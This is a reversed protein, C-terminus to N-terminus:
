GPIHLLENKSSNVDVESLLKDEKDAAPGRLVNDDQSLSFSQSIPM